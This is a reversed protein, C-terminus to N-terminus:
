GPVRGKVANAWAMYAIRGSRDRPVHERQYAKLREVDAETMKRIHQVISNAFGTQAAWYEEFNPYSVEIEITRTSVEELGAATFFGSLSDLRSNQHGPLRPVAVGMAEVAERLPQQTYGKGLFDWVYTGLTGGPKVVRRMEAVAKAPDPIFTIVLAMAAVDFEGDAFPLSQADGLHFDIRKTVPKTRAYAIQDEAPDVASVHRPACRDLVLETFVGTGCGVDLWRKGPPVALWALFVEGAARSWRRMLREYAAGDTFYSQTEDM